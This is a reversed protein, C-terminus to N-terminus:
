ATMRAFYEAAWLFPGYRIIEGLPRILSALAGSFGSDQSLSHGSAGQPGPSRIQNQTKGDMLGM